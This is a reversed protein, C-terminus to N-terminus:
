SKIAITTKLKTEFFVKVRFAEQRKNFALAFQYPEIKIESAGEFKLVGLESSIQFTQENLTPVVTPHFHFYAIVSNLASKAAVEDIIELENNLSFSRKFRKVGFHQYANHSLTLAHSSSNVISVQPRKGVRFGGWVDATNTHNVVVVNHASSSREENRTQGIQYTSTGTEVLFPRNKVYCIFGTVDAHAHGPQYSPEIGMTDIITEIENSCMKRYGSSSLQIGVSHINLKQAYNYLENPLASIGPAADNFMPIDGNSFSIASLWGLMLAAKEMLFTRTAHTDLAKNKELLNICDLLRELLICQYMASREFHGGDSLIQENLENLLLRVSEKYLLKDNTVIAGAFLAFANELLHNGLLHFEKNKRVFQIQNFLLATLMTNNQNTRHIFKILNFIRLSAPYPENKLRGASLELYFSQIISQAIEASIGVQNVCDLYQLNYNWLKGFENENWNIQGIFTKSQNLFNFTNPHIYKVSPAIYPVAFFDSQMLVHKNSFEVSNFLRFYNKCRYWIQFFVQQFKLYRTTQVM